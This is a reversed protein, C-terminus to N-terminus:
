GTLAAAFLGPLRFVSPKSYLALLREAVKDPHRHNSFWVPKPSICLPANVITKQPRDLLYTNHVSGIGSQVDKIDAGPFGGWPPSMWAFGLGAWQNIGITGYRLGRLAADFAASEQKRFADPVTVEAALTGTMRNNVFDVAQSLFRSPNEADLMTEGTVCVFSEREFLMPQADITVDEKLTWPLYGEPTGAPDSGAFQTYRQDAGPYYAFRPSTRALASNLLKLFKERQPWRKWTILMKTAVCNFSANNTISAAISEAQSNLQRDTYEGPVIIWPTVNGLESSIPKDLLPQDQEKRRKREDPDGGWVIAEHTDCSGTIHISDVKPHNIAYAGESAAGYVVRLWGARILPKLADEFLPGLYQNVPNMKLLVVADEQFIKTMADTVPISSVNGAGLVLEIKPDISTKRMLRDPADGFINEISVEPDLWTEGSLGQFAISDFMSQTPFVPVRLQGEVLRPQGPLQPKGHVKLDNLTKIILRLYRLSSIPGTLMEEARGAASQGTKKAACGAEQWPRAIRVIGEICEQAVAIRQDLSSSALNEAGKLLDALSHDISQPTTIANM